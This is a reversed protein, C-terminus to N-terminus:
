LCWSEIDEHDLMSLPLQTAYPDNFPRVPFEITGIIISQYHIMDLTMHSDYADTNM